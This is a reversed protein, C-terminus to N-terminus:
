PTRQAVPPVLRLTRWHLPQGRGDARRVALDLQLLRPAAPDVPADAARAPDAFPEVQLEWQLAGGDFEGQRRGPLLIEGAGVQALLSQAHLTARSADDAARIQRSSNSLAGVLITLAGALLAFAVIVEILTFGSQRRRTM